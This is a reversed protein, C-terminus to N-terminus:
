LIEILVQARQESNMLGLLAAAKGMQESTAGLAQMENVIEAIVQWDHDTVYCASSGSRTARESVFAFGDEWTKINELM